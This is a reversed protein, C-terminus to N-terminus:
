VDSDVEESLSPLQFATSSENSSLLAYELAAVEKRLASCITTAWVSPFPGETKAVSGINCIAEIAQQTLLELGKRSDPTSVSEPFDQSNCATSFDMGALWAPDVNLAEAFQVLRAYKPMIKGNVYESLSSKPINLRECFDSQSMNRMALAEQIRNGCLIAIKNRM